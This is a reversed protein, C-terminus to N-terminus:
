HSTQVGSVEKPWSFTFRTGRKTAPDSHVGLEGGNSEVAKKVLALGMGNGPVYEKQELKRFPLMIKEHFKPDIGPGDDEVTFVWKDGQDEQGITITGVDRDNHKVSNEILNRFILLLPARLVFLENSSPQITLTTNSPKEIVDFIDNLTLSLDIREPSQDSSGARSYDLLDGLLGSLHSVQDKLRDIHEQIAGRAESSVDEEIWNTTHQIARLPGTLDHSVIHTFQNLNDNIRALESNQDALAKEARLRETVDIVVALSRKEKSEAYDDVIASLRVDIVSGDKKVMQYPVNECADELWFEQLITKSFARSEPTLFDQSKRGVVEEPKYGMVEFWHESAEVIVGHGDISHMMVPTKRYLQRSRAEERVLQENVAELARQAEKIATIDRGVAQIEDIDGDNGEIAYRHWYLWRSTGDALVDEREYENAGGPVLEAVSDIVGQKEHDPVLDILKTGILEDRSKGYYRCYADNVFTLTFQPDFRCIIEYQQQVVNSYLREQRQLDHKAEQLENVDVVTLVVGSNAELYSKYSLIRLLYARDDVEIERDLTEGGQCVRQIDEVLEPYAFRYTIHAFPRGIDHDVLNFTRAAAPTFRRINLESGIFITGIDTARFLNDMDETAETLEEIKRQHEASVTFLEENVSHLEENTSQLEENSAMMEENTAQLEENSTELEEITNQLSEETGRLDRELEEIRQSYFVSDTEQDKSLIPAERRTELDFTILIFEIQNTEGLLSDVSVNVTREDGDALNVKTKRRFEVAHRASAREIGASVVLKLEPLIMDMVKKSFIGSKLRIFMDADGFIQILEGNTDLLLCPPAYLELIRDYARTMVQRQAYGELAVVSRSRNEALRLGHEKRSTGPAYSSPLLETSERLRVDRTKKFIRWKKSVIKFEEALDSTSESPGLFLAAGKRLSFHFMALAKRQAVDDLYILLNRCTVLDIRTFPPDKILNHPSFVIMKRLFPKVQYNGRVVDFYRALYDKNVNKLNERSYVGASAIDLSTFHIDTAFIKVNLPIGQERAIESVLIAISYPEEGSACGASWIRLTRRDTMVSALDPLVDDKLIRYAEADRFFSTVGILLDCYLAELEEPDNELLQAYQEMDDVKNLLARRWIRRNVSPKKYYGFDAGYQRQLLSIVRSEPDIIIDDDHRQHEIDKGGVLEMLLLPMENPLATISAPNREIAAMPMSNFKASAPEQVIMTGGANRIAEGGRAGDSGTGSLVIGVAKGGQDEALSTFFTDIPLTLAGPTVHEQTHLRGNKITLDTRPPNLYVENSKVMMGDEAHHIKMTSHRALLQDMMSRFDPSLHQIIVFALGSVIPMDDFFDEIPELGGASAGIAVVRVLEDEAVPSSAVVKSAAPKRKRTKVAPSPSLAKIKVNESPEGKASADKKVPRKRGSTNRRETAAM